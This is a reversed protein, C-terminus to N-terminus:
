KILMLKQTDIYGDIIIKVFYIGSSFDSGNWGITYNGALQYRNVISEIEKGFLDLVVVKVNTSKPVFYIIKTSPNFPNPYIKNIGIKNPNTEYNISMTDTDTETDISADSEYPSSSAGCANIMPDDNTSIYYASEPNFEHDEYDNGTNDEESYSSYCIHTHYRNALLITGNEDIIDHVHGHQADLVSLDVINKNLETCGMVITGDCTIGYLEIEASGPITQTVHNPMKYNLVELPGMSTSHYHYANGFDPHGSYLDFGYMEEEILDNGAAVPNYMNVGNLAVGITGMPYENADGANYIGDVSNQSKLIGDIPVPDVPVSIVHEVEEIYNPVQFYCDGEPPQSQCANGQANYEIDNAGGNYYWTQYPPKGNFYINVYNGSESMRIKVCHFYKKFFIPVDDAIDTTCTGLNYQSLLILNNSVILFLILYKKM